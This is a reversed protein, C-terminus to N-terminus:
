ISENTDAEAHIDVVPIVVARTHRIARDQTLAQLIVTVAITLVTIIIAIALLLPTQRALFTRLGTTM